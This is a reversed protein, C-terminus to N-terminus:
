LKEDEADILELGYGGGSGFPCSSAGLRHIAYMKGAATYLYLRVIVVQNQETGFDAFVLQAREKEYLEAAEESDLFFILQSRGLYRRVADIFDMRWVPKLSFAGRERDYATDFLYTTGVIVGQLRGARETFHEVSEFPTRDALAMLVDYAPMCAERTMRDARLFLVHNHHQESYKMRVQQPLLFHFVLTLNYFYVESADFDLIEDGQAFIHILAGDRGDYTMHPRHLPISFIDKYLYVKHVGPDALAEVLDEQSSVIVGDTGCEHVRKKRERERKLTEMLLSIEDNSLHMVDISLAECLRLLVAERGQMRIARDLMDAQSEWFRARLWAQLLGDAALVLLEQLTFADRLDDLTSCSQLQEEINKTQQEM